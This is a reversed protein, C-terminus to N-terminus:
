EANISVVVVGVRVGVGGGMGPSLTTPPAAASPPMTLAPAPPTTSPAATDAPTSGMTDEMTGAASPAPTDLTSSTETDTDTGVTTGCFLDVLFAGRNEQGHYGFDNDMGEAWSGAVVSGLFCPDTSVFCAVFSADTVQELSNM